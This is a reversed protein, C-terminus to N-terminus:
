RPRVGGPKDILIVKPTGTSGSSCIGNSNPSLSTPCRRAGTTPPPARAVRPRRRRPLGEADIVERLRDREWDPLDWRVPVPVAGLKWAALVAFVFEPSNRLGLAVRDGLGVGRAALAAALQSSRRDLEGFTLSVSPATWRWTCTPSRRAASPRSPARIRQVNSTEEETM